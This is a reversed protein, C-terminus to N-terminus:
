CKTYKEIMNTKYFNTRVVLEHGECTLKLLRQDTLKVYPLREQLFTTGRQSEARMVSFMKYMESRMDIKYFYYFYTSKAVEYEKV